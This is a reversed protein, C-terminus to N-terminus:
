LKREQKGKTQESTQESIQKPLKQAVLCVLEQIKAGLRECEKRSMSSSPAGSHQQSQQQGQKQSQLEDLVDVVQMSLKRGIPKKLARGIKRSPWNFSPVLFAHLLYVRFDTDLNTILEKNSLKQNVLLNHRARRLFSEVPKKSGRPYQTLSKGLLVNHKHKQWLLRLGVLLGTGLFVMGWWLLWMPYAGVMPGVPGYYVPEKQPDIVSVVEYKLEKIRFGKFGDTLQMNTLVHEGPVYSTIHFTASCCDSKIHKLMVFSYPLVAAPSAPDVSVLSPTSSFGGPELASAGQCHMKNVSGVSFVPEKPLLLSLECNWAIVPTM